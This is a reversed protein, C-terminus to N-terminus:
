KLLVFCTLFYIMAASVDNSTTVFPGSAVAPDIKMRHLVVPVVAGYSSGFVMANFMAIGVAQGMKAPSVDVGGLGYAKMYTLICFALLFSLIGCCTGLSFGVRIERWVLDFLRGYKKYGLAIGRVAVASAQMGTNGGMGLIMPTFMTIGVIQITSEMRSIIVSIVFGAAMTIMLWPLRLRAIKLPSDEEEDIDPAGVMHALDETAEEIMVDMIDDVTIRGILRHNEDVVPMVWLDYKRFKRAIEEQDEQANCYIVNTEAIKSLVTDPHHGSILQKLGVVGYLREDDDVLYVYFIPDTFTYEALTERAEKVRTRWPISCVETTMVGGASDEEFELLKSVEDVSEEMAALVEAGQTDELDNIFDAADDPTMIEVLDAIEESSMSDVVEDAVNHELEVLVDSAIDKDLFDFLRDRQDADAEEFMDALDAPDVRGICKRLESISNRDLLDILREVPIHEVAKPM